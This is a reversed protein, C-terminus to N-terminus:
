DAGCLNSTTALSEKLVIPVKTNLQNFLHVVKPTVQDCISPM